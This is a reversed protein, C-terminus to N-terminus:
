GGSGDETAAAARRRVVLLIPVAMLIGIVAGIVIGLAGDSMGIALRSGSLGNMMMGAMPWLVIAGSLTFAIASLKRYDPESRSSSLVLPRGRRDALSLAIADRLDFM